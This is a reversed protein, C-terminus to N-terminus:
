YTITVAPIKGTVIATMVRYAQDHNLKAHAMLAALAASNVARLHDRDAARAADAADREEKERQLRANTEAEIRKATREAAEAREREEEAARLIERRSDEAAKEKADREAKEAELAANAARLKDLEAREAESQLALKIMADLGQRTAAIQAEYQEAFEERDFDPGGFRETLLAAREKWEDSTLPESYGVDTLGAIFRLHDLHQDKRGQEASEWAILPALVGAEWKEITDWAKRGAADIKKPIAKQEDALRKRHREIYTRSSRLKGRFTRIEERGAESEPDPPDNYYTGVRDQIQTLLTDMKGDVTFYSLADAEPILAIATEDTTEEMVAATKKM